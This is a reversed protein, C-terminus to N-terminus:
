FGREREKKEDENNKKGMERFGSGRVWFRRGVSVRVVEM